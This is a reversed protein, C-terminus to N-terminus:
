RTTGREKRHKGDTQKGDGHETVSSRSDARSAGAQGNGASSQGLPGEHTPRALLHDLHDDLVDSVERAGASRWAQVPVCAGEAQQIAARDPLPPDLVLAGYTDRLEDLRFRHEVSQARLKNVIIGAPRLRLNDARVLDIAELAAAAGQLAFLSPETVVVATHSAALANRTLGGLSPPSDVLVLDYGHLGNMAVRLRLTADRGALANHRELLSDAAIVDVDPGWGSVSVAHALLEPRPDSLVDSATFRVEPPDLVTSANGQPDLDVVLTRVGREWAAGALGLAVSTKGVGGKLSIVSVVLM